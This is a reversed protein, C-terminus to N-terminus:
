CVKKLKKSMICSLFRFKEKLKAIITSYLKVKLASLESNLKGFNLASKKSKLKEIDNSINRNM